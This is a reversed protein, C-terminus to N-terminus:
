TFNVNGKIYVEDYFKKFENSISALETKEYECTIKGKADEGIEEIISMFIPYTEVKSMDTNVGDYIKDRVIEEKLKYQEKLEMEWEKDQLITFWKKYITTLKSLRKKEINDKYKEYRTTLRQQKYCGQALKEKLEERIALIEPKHIKVYKLRIKDQTDIFKKEEKPSKKQLVLISSKVGAGYNSFTHQPLSFSAVIKFKEMLYDRVNQMSSNTLVGDPLVMAVIGTSPKLFHYYRELFLVESKQNKLRKSKKDDILEDIFDVTSNAFKDFSKFYAKGDKINSGFPPNTFVYDFHNEKFDPKKKQFYEFSDLGDHAIVNTHGDDHIIMNMKATRSISGSIEIGYLNDKAFDHWFRHKKVPDKLKKSKEQMQELAQLLFGGSGCSPDIVKDTSQLDFLNVIFKVINM